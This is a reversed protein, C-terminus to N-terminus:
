KIEKLDENNEEDDQEEVLEILDKPLNDKAYFIMPVPIVLAICIVIILIILRLIRKLKKM